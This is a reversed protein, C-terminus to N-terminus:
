PVDATCAGGGKHQVLTSRTWDYTHAKVTEACVCGRGPAGQERIVLILCPALSKSLSACVYSMLRCVGVGTQCCKDVRNQERDKYRKLGMVLLATAGALSNMDMRLDIMHSKLSHMQSPSLTCSLM